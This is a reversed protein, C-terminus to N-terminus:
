PKFWFTTDTIGTSTFVKPWTRFRDHVPSYRLRESNDLIIIGGKKLKPEAHMACETRARGDVLIFDFSEDPYQDILSYYQVYCTAPTPGVVFDDWRQRILEPKSAKTQEILHYEVNKQGSSTLQQQVMKFWTPDHELSVLHNIRKATFLTSRGSGFEFGMMSPKLIADLIEISAPSLWPSNNQVLTKHYFKLLPRLLRYRTYAFSLVPKSVFNRKVYKRNGAIALAKEYGSPEM